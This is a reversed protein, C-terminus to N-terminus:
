VAETKNAGCRACRCVQLKEGDSWWSTVPKWQCGFILCRLKMCDRGQLKGYRGELAARKDIRQEYWDRRRM